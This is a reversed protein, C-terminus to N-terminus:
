AHKEIFRVLNSIIRVLEQRSYGTSENDPIGWAIATNAEELLKKRSKEQDIKNVFRNYEDLTKFPKNRIERSM